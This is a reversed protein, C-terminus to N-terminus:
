QCNVPIVGSVALLNTIRVVDEYGAPLGDVNEVVHGHFRVYMLEGDDHGKTQQYQNLSDEISFDMELLYREQKDCPRFVFQDGNRVVRGSHVLADGDMLPEVSVSLTLAYLLLPAIWIM